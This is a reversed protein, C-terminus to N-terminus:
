FLAADKWHILGAVEAAVLKIGVVVQTRVQIM